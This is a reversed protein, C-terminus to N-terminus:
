HVRQFTCSTANPKSRIWDLTSWAPYIKIDRKPALPVRHKPLVPKHSCSFLMNHLLTSTHISYTKEQQDHKDCSIKRKTSINSINEYISELLSYCIDQFLLKFNWINPFIYYYAPKTFQFTQIELLQIVTFYKVMQISTYHM